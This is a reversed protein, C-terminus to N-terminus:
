KREPPDGASPQQPANPQEPQKPPEGVKRGLIQELAEIQEKSFLELMALLELQKPDISELLSMVAQLKEAPVSKGDKTVANSLFRQKWTDIIQTGWVKSQQLIERRREEVGDMRKRANERELSYDFLEERQRLLNQFVQEFHDNRDQLQAITKQQADSAAKFGTIVLSHLELNQRHASKLLEATARIADAPIGERSAKLDADDSIGDDGFLLERDRQFEELSQQSFRKTGDPADLAALHGNEVLQQLTRLSVGLSKAAAPSGFWSEWGLPASQKGNPKTRQPQAFEAM